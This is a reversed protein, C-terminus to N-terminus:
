SNGALVKEITRNSVHFWFEGEDDECMVATMGPKPRVRLSGSDCYGIAQRKLAEVLETEGDKPNAPFLNYSMGLRSFSPEYKEFSFREPSMKELKMKQEKRTRFSNVAEVIMKAVAIRVSLPKLNVVSAITRGDADLVDAEDTRWPLPAPNKMGASFERELSEEFGEVLEPTTEYCKLYKAM